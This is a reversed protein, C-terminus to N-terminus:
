SHLTVTSAKPALPCEDCYPRTTEENQAVAELLGYLRERFYENVREVQAQVPFVFHDDLESGVLCLPDPPARLGFYCIVRAEVISSQYGRAAAYSRLLSQTCLVDRLLSRKKGADFNRNGRKIEYSRVSSIRRDFVFADVQLSRGADGYPLEILSGDPIDANRGRIARDSIDSVEFTPEHWVDFYKSQGLRHRIAVELIQGHRKYASSVISTQRSYREGGIPDVRFRARGLSAITADVVPRLADLTDAIELM